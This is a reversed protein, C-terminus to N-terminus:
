RLTCPFPEQKNEETEETDSYIPNIPKFKVAQYVAEYEGSYDKQITSSGKTDVVEKASSFGRHNTKTLANRGSKNNQPKWNTGEFSDTLGGEGSTGLLSGSFLFVALFTPFFRNM